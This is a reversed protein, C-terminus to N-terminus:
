REDSAVEEKGGVGGLIGLANLANLAAAQEAHKKSPGWAAEFERGAMRVCIQFFRAHDPGKYGMVVYEPTTELRQQAHQQLISKYNEQHGSRAARDIKDEVLPEIFAEVKCMGGDIYLAAIIAELAAAGLSAPLEAHTKMGKGIVLYQELGLQKAIESCTTRSVVASKIKTMEGELLHPFKQYIRRCVILGLVADGLFELRENSKVRADTVSAHRMATDLLVRDKFVHQVVAEVPTPYVTAGGNLHAAAVPASSESAVGNETESKAKRPM